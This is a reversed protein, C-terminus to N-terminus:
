EWFSYTSDKQELTKRVAIAVMTQNSWLLNSKESYWNDHAEFLENVLKRCEYLFKIYSNDTIKNRYESDLSDFLGHAWLVTNQLWIIFKDIDGTKLYDKLNEKIFTEAESISDENLFTAKELIWACDPYIRMDPEEKTSIAPYLDSNLTFNVSM